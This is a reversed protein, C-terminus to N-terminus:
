AAGGPFVGGAAGGGSVAPPPSPAAALALVPSPVGAAADRACHNRGTPLAPRQDGAPEFAPVELRRLRAPTILLSTAPYLLLGAFAVVVTLWQQTWATAYFPTLILSTGLILAAAILLCGSDGAGPRRMRKTPPRAGAHGRPRRTGRNYKRANM